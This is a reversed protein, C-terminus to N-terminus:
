VKGLQLVFKSVVIRCDMAKVIVGRRCGRNSKLYGVITPISNLGVLGDDDDVQVSLMSKESEREGGM